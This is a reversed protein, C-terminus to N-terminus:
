IRGCKDVQDIAYKKKRERMLFSVPVLLYTLGFLVVFGFIAFSVLSCFLLSLFPFCLFCMYVYLCLQCM